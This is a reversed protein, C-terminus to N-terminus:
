LIVLVTVCVNQIRPRLYNNNSLTFISHQKMFVRNREHSKEAILNVCSADIGTHPQEGRKVQCLQQWPLLSTPEWRIHPWIISSTVGWLCQSPTSLHTVGITFNEPSLSTGSHGTLPSSVLMARIYHSPSLTTAPPLTPGWTGKFILVFQPPSATSHSVFMVDWAFRHSCLM